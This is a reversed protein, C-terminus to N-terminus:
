ARRRRISSRTAAFSTTSSATSRATSRTARRFRRPSCCSGSPPSAPYAGPQALARNVRHGGLIASAQNWAPYSVVAGDWDDPWRTISAIAERGGTSGGAFYSKQIADVAYRAKILFVAADRTKKLADGGFNRLAEDNVVFPATWRASPAPRTAPTARSPRTAAGLPLLQDTPGAPV